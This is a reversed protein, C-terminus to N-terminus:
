KANFIVISLIEQHIRQKLPINPITITDDNFMNNNTNNNITNKNTSNINNNNDNNNSVGSGFGLGLWQLLTPRSATDESLSKARKNM